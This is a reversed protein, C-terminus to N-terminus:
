TASSILFDDLSRLPLVFHENLQRGFRSATSAFAISQCHIIHKELVVDDADVLAHITLLDVRRLGLICGAPHVDLWVGHLHQPFVQVASGFPEDESLFPFCREDVRGNEVLVKM